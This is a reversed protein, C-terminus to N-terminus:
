FLYSNLPNYYDQFNPEFEKETYLYNNIEDILQTPRLPLLKKISFSLEDSMSDIKKLTDKIDLDPYALIRSVHLSYEALRDVDTSSTIFNVVSSKWDQILNQLNDIDVM